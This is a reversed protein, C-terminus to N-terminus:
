VPLTRARIARSDVTVLAGSLLEQRFRSAIDDVLVAIARSKLGEIRIRVVSPQSAGSTAMLAHFDADFTVVVQGSAKAAAIIEIDPSKSLGIEAVHVAEHGREALASVVGRGLGQDLLFKM